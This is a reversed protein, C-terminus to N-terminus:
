FDLAAWRVIVVPVKFWVIDTVPARVRVVRRSDPDAEIWENGGLYVMAHVGDTTIALDGPLLRAADIENVSAADFKYVTWGRYSNKLARASADHLWLAAGARVASPNLSTIGDRLYARLLAKRPLGSCDIGLGNEGGWVYRVGEYGRLNAVYRARLSEADIDRGPLILLL